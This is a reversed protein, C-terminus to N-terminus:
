GIDFTEDFHHRFFSLAGRQCICRAANASATRRTPPHLAGRQRIRHPANASATRHTPPYPAGRQRIRHPATEAGGGQPLSPPPKGQSPPPKGRL